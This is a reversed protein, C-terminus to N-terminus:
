GMGDLRRRRLCALVLEQDEAVLSPDWRSLDQEKLLVVTASDERAPMRADNLLMM